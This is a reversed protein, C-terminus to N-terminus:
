DCALAHGVVDKIRKIGMWFFPICGLVKNIGPRLEEDSTM